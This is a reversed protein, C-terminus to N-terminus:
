GLGTRYRLIISELLTETATLAGLAVMDAEHEDLSQGTHEEVSRVVTDTFVDESAAIIADAFCGLLRSTDEIPGENM